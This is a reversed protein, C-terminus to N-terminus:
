VNSPQVIDEALDREIEALCRQLGKAHLWGVFGGFFLQGQADAIFVHDVGVPNKWTRLTTGDHFSLLTRARPFDREHADTMGPVALLRQRLQKLLTDDREAGWFAYIARAVVQPTRLQNHSIGPLRINPVGELHTAGVTVVGDSGGDKDGAIVLTPIHRAVEEALPRRNKGLDRSITPMVGFPDFIRALDSGGIPSGLLVLSDVIVWLERHRDLLELWILGGLSHAVIQLRADPNAARADALHAELSAILPEIGLWTQILGLNPTVVVTNPTTLAAALPLFDKHTDNWGHQIFLIYKTITM